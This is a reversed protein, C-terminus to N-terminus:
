GRGIIKRMEDPPPKRPPRKLHELDHLCRCLGRVVNVPHNRFAKELPTTYETRPWYLHHNSGHPPDYKCGRLVDPCKEPM